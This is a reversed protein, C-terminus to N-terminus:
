AVNAPELVEESKPMPIRRGDQALLQLLDAAPVPRGFLWGQGLFDENHGVFFEAQQSTEVGEVIVSLNLAEAMAFIQPLIAVVVSETGISQTFSRDIKIADVCLHQLYSLSSYGTGFDDIHVSHGNSRLQAIAEAAVELRVTTSETLEIALKHPSVRANRLQGELMPLFDPDSLDTAAVNISLRFQPNERLAWGMERLAHRLVLRTLDGVFGREEAVRVFVDPSVAAGEENTWRVLAEAGVIRRSALHVIPQYVLRLKDKAIARRLQQEMSKNRRYALSMALGFLVGLLAGLAVCGNFKGQNAAAVEDLSAYATACNFFRISCHTSYLTDEVNRLGDATIVPGDVGPTDSLVTGAKQTPSDIATVAYHLPRQEPHMRTLPTYVVYSDGLQLTIVTLGGSEGSQYPALNKYIRTGDQQTFDPASQAYTQSAVGLAASCAIKGDRMRGADKLFDSEFILARFYGIEQTSCPNYQSAGVAALVTRLEAASAEGDSVIRYSYQDLQVETVRSTILHALKYGAFAGLLGIAVAVILTFLLRKKQSAMM